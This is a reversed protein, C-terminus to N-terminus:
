NRTCPPSKTAENSCRAGDGYYGNLDIRFKRSQLALHAPGPIVTGREFHAICTQTLGFIGAMEKQGMGLTERISFFRKWIKQKARVDDSLKLFMTM